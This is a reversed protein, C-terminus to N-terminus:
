ICLFTLGEKARHLWKGLDQNLLSCALHPSDTHKRHSNPSPKIGLVGRAMSRARLMVVDM